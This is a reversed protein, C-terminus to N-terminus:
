SGVIIFSLKFTRFESSYNYTLQRINIHKQSFCGVKMATLNFKGVEESVVVPEGAWGM